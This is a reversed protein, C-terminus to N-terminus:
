ATRVQRIHLGDMVMQYLNTPPPLTTKPPGFIPVASVLMDMKGIVDEIDEISLLSKETLIRKQKEKWREVRKEILKDSYSGEHYFFEVDSQNFNLTSKERLNSTFAGVYLSLQKLFHELGDEGPAVGNPAGYRIQPLYIIEQIEKGYAKQAMGFELGPFRAADKFVGNWSDFHLQKFYDNIGTGLKWGDDKMDM